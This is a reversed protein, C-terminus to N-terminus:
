GYAVKLVNTVVLIDLIAKIKSLTTGLQHTVFSVLFKFM